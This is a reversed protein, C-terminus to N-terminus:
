GFQSTTADFMANIEEQAARPNPSTAAAHVIPAVLALVRALMASDESDGARAISTSSIAVVLGIAAHISRM